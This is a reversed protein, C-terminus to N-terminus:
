SDMDVYLYRSYELKEIKKASNSLGFTHLLPVLRDLLSSVVSWRSIGFVARRPGKICRRLQARQARRRPLRIEGARLGATCNKTIFLWDCLSEGGRGDAFARIVDIVEALLSILQDDNNM